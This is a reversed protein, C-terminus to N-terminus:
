YSLGLSIVPEAGSVTPSEGADTGAAGVQKPLESPWASRSVSERRALSKELQDLLETRGSVMKSPATILDFLAARDARSLSRHARQQAAV